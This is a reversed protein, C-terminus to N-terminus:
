KTHFRYRIIRAPNGAVISYPPIVGNPSLNDNASIVSGAGICVGDGVSIGSLIISGYGIWVDNGIFIDGKTAPHGTISQAEQWNTLHTFPFTTIWDTKHKWIENMVLAPM